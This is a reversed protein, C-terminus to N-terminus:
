LEERRSWILVGQLQLLLPARIATGMVVSLLGCHMERVKETASLLLDLYHHVQTKKLSTTKILARLNLIRPLPLPNSALM